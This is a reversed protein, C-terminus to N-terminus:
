RGPLGGQVGQVYYDIRNLADDSMTGSEQRVRGQSDVIRGSFPHFRGAAIEDRRARVQQRVDAPVAANFAELEVFGAGIGGWVGSPKWRGEIVDLAVKTYYDGWHHSVATLQGKPGFRSMDTHYGISYRGKEEAAIV